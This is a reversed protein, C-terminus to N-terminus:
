LFHNIIAAVNVAATGVHTHTGLVTDLFPEVEIALLAELDDLVEVLRDGNQSQLIGESGPCRGWGIACGSAGRVARRGQWKWYHRPHLRRKKRKCGFGM